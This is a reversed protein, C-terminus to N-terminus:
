TQVAFLEGLKVEVGAISGCRLTDGGRLTVKEAYRGNSPMRYVDLEAAEPRVLWYEPVGAEAYIDAKEVDAEITSVSIEVVLEATAPHHEAWDDPGGRVVSLDPEPESDGFTLPQEPRVFMGSPVSRILLMLLKQLIRVHLPSKPMKKVIYGRLLEHSEDLMGLEGMRHYEEVTVRHVRARIAPQDLLPNV